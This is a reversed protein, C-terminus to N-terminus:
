ICMTELGVSEIASWITPEYVACRMLRRGMVRLDESYYLMVWEHTQVRGPSPEPPISEELMVERAGSGHYGKTYNRLNWRRSDRM